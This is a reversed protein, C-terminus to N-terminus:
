EGYGYACPDFTCPEEDRREAVVVHFLRALRARASRFWRTVKAAGAAGPQEGYRRARDGSSGIGLSTKMPRILKTKRRSTSSTGVAMPTVIMVNKM